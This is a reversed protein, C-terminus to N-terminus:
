QTRQQLTFCSGRGANCSRLSVAADIYTDVELSEYIVTIVSELLSWGSKFLCLRKPALCAGHVGGPKAPQKKLAEELKESHAHLIHRDPVNFCMQGPFQCFFFFFSVITSKLFCCEANLFPLVYFGCTAHFARIHLLRCVSYPQLVVCLGSQTNKLM